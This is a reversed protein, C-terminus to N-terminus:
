PPIPAHEEFFTPIKLGRFNNKNTPPLLIISGGGGGGGGGWGVLNFGALLSLRYLLGARSAHAFSRVQVM